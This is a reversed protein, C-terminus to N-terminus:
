ESAAEPKSPSLQQQCQAQIKTFLPLLVTANQMGKCSQDMVQLIVDVEQPALTITFQEITNM